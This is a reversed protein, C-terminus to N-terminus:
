LNNPISNWIPDSPPSAVVQLALPIAVAALALGVFIETVGFFTGLAGPLLRLVLLMCFWLTLWIAAGALGTPPRKAWGRLRSKMADQM